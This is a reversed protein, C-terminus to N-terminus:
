RLQLNVDHLESKKKESYQAKMMCNQSEQFFECNCNCSKEKFESNVDHMESKKEGFQLNVDHM